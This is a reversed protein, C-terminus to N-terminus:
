VVRYIEIGEERIHQSAVPDVIFYKGEVVVLLPVDDSFYMDSVTEGVSVKWWHKFVPQSWAGSLRAIKIEGHM